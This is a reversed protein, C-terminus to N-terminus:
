TNPRERTQAGDKTDGWGGSNHHRDLRICSTWAMTSVVNTMLAVGSGSAKGKRVHCQHAKHDKDGASTAVQSNPKAQREKEEPVEASTRATGGSGAPPVNDALNPTSNNDRERGRLEQMAPASHERKTACDVNKEAAARSMTISLAKADAESKDEQLRKYQNTTVKLRVNETYNITAANKADSARDRITRASDASFPRFGTKM